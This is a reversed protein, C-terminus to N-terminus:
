IMGDELFCSCKQAEGRKQCSPMCRGLYPCNPCDHVFQQVNLKPKICRIGKRYLCAKLCFSQM